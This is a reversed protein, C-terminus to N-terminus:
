DTGQVIKSGNKKKRRRTNNAYKQAGEPTSTRVLGTRVKPEKKFKKRITVMMAALEKILARCVAKSFRIDTANTLEKSSDNLERLEKERLRKKADLVELVLQLEQSDIVNSRRVSQSPM